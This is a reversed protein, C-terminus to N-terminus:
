GPSQAKAGQAVSRRLATKLDPPAKKRARKRREVERSLRQQL